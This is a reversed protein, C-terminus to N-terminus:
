SRGNAKLYDAARVLAEGMDRAEQEFLNLSTALMSMAEMKVKVLGSFRCTEVIISSDDQADKLAISETCIMPDNPIKPNYTM